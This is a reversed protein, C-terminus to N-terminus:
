LKKPDERRSSQRSFQLSGEAGLYMTFYGCTLLCSDIFWFIGLQFM